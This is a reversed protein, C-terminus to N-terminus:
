EAPKAMATFTEAMILWRGDWRMLTMRKIGSDAYGSARYHQVFEVDARVASPNSIKLQDVRIELAGTGRLAKKRQSQWDEASEASAKFDPGYHALYLKFDRAQWANRWSEVFQRIETESQTHSDDLTKQALVPSATLLLALMCNRLFVISRGLVGM